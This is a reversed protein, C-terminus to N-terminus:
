RSSVHAAVKRPAVLGLRVPELCLELAESRVGSAFHHAEDVVLMSFADGFRDLCRYASEFTLVTIRCVSKM